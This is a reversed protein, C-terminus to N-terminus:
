ALVFICQRHQPCKKAKITAMQFWYPLFGQFERPSISLASFFATQAIHKHPFRPFMRILALRLRQWSPTSGQSLNVTQKNLLNREIWTLYVGQVYGKEALLCMGFPILTHALSEQMPNLLSMQSMMMVHSTM